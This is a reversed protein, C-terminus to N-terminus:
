NIFDKAAMAYAYLACVANQAATNEAYAESALLKGVYTLACVGITQTDAGETATITFKEALWAAKVGRIEVMVRNGKQTKQLQTQADWAVGTAPTVTVTVDDANLKSGDAHALFIRIATESDLVLSMSPAKFADSGAVTMQYPDTTTIGKIEDVDYETTYPDKMMQAYKNNDPETGTNIEWNNISSLFIQVYHGYDALAHVLATIKTKGSSDPLEPAAEYEWQNVYEKVSYTGASVTQGEGYHFTATIKDAMQLANVKCEFVYKDNEVNDANYNVTKTALNDAGKGSITFDMYSTSYDVGDIYPLEMLFKVGIEEGLTLSHSRLTPVTAPIEVFTAKVEVNHAPMTFQKAEKIDTTIMTNDDYLPHTEYSYTLTDLAYGESPTVTVTVTNGEAEVDKSVTVTGNKDADNVKVHYGKPTAYIVHDHWDDDGDGNPRFYVTYRGTEPIEGDYAGYENGFGSPYWNTKIIGDASYVVKFQTYQFKHDEPDTLKARLLDVDIMYEETEAATRTTIKYAPNLSWGTMTGVLYYGADETVPTPDGGGVDGYASWTTTAGDWVGEALTFLNKDSPVALDGTQNWRNSWNNDSNAPNMRVFIVTTDGSPLEAEYIDETEGDVRTMSTWHQGSGWSYMAFRAGDMKWGSNPKFYLTRTTPEPSPSPPASPEATPQYVVAIGTPGVTGSIKGGSVTFVNGTIEDFYYGSSMLHADLNVSGAGDLKVISVGADGGSTGREIWVTKNSASDYSFYEGKGKYHNKFKNVAAVAPSKWSTDTSALGIRENPRAFFLATSNARAGVIAWTQIMKETPIGDTHDNLYNDHSEAWIVYSSPNGSRYYISTANVGGANQDKVATRTNNGTVNDTLGIYQTYNVEDTGLDDLAEGYIFLYAGKDSAYTRAGDIVTPWFDSRTGEPDAPVEIHKAADFRFGDVGCDICAKLLDLVKQQIVENGTNLDPMKMHYHTTNFRDSPTNYNIENEEPHFYDANKLDDDVQDSLNNNGNVTYGGDGKNGLHNAVIDVIVYIGEQEAATCLETLDEATGLWSENEGAIRIGIPQYLKWWNGSTDNWSANYDKPPQVPSTQVAAYGAAKIDPLAERIEDFSWDFCHLIAGGQVIAQDIPGSEAVATKPAFITPVLSLVMLIALLVSLVRRKM